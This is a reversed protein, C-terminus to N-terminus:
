VGKNECNIRFCCDSINENGGVICNDSLIEGENSCKRITGDFIGYFPHEEAGIPM